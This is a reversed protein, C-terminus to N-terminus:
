CATICPNEGTMAKLFLTELRDYVRESDLQLMTQRAQQGMRRLADLDRVLAAAADVFQAADDFPALAGSRGTAVHERAAAYDFAAIALGSAMAELIVNGFTETLSPFLFLDASAYHTALDEGQRMGCYVFEPHRARLRPTLPGDGVLVLRANPRQQRMAQFATIALDLNKEAALRGVYLVAPADPAVGWAERLAPDRRQPSFLGTDVGRALVQTRLFGISQLQDALEATPVLTQVGQNHFHRLYAMIPTALWGLHYHRSYGHFNTHFSTSVPIALKRAARLASYGLPGETVIHLLDPRSRRWAGSLATMAPWGGQLQPYGPIRFGPLCLTDLTDVPGPEDGQRVRILQVSHGRRQLGEVWRAITLAVGNIEPPYTETVIGLRLRRQPFQLNPEIAM